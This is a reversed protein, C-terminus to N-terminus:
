EEKSKATTGYKKWCFCVIFRVSLFIALVILLILVIVDLLFYQFWNLGLAPSRMDENHPHRLLYEMWWVARELPHQPQDLILSNLKAVNEEYVPNNLVETVAEDLNETTLEHWGIVLGMGHKIAENLNVFQDLAIPIGVVPTKHCITEQYSGAGGHTIFLKVKPHGLLDPQPLWSSILVNPPADLMDVEWKWIVRQKLKSFVSLLIQRKFEPMKSSKIVSGFSVFIVGHEATEVFERLNEPLPKAPACTMLSALITKPM